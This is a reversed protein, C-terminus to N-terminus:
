SNETSLQKISGRLLGQLATSVTQHASAKSILDYFICVQKNAIRDRITWSTTDSLFKVSKYNKPM